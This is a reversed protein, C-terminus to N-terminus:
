PSAEFFWSFGGSLASKTQVELGQQRVNFDPSEREFDPTRNQFIRNRYPPKQNAVADEEGATKAAV